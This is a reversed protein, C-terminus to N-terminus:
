SCTDLMVFAVLKKYSENHNVKMFGCFGNRINSCKDRASNLINRVSVVRSQTNSDMFGLQTERGACRPFKPLKSANYSATTPKYCSYQCSSFLFYHLPVNQALCFIM